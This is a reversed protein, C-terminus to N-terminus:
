YRLLKTIIVFSNTAHSFISWWKRFNKNECFFGKWNQGSHFPAEVLNANSLFLMEIHVSLWFPSLWVTKVPANQSTDWVWCFWWNDTRHILLPALGVELLASASVFSAFHSWKSAAQLGTLFLSSFLLM